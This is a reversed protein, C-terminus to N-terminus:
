AEVGAAVGIEFALPGLTTGAALKTQFAVARARGVQLLVHVERAWAVLARWAWLRMLARLASPIMAAAWM